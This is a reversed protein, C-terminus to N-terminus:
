VVRGKQPYGVMRHETANAGRAERRSAQAPPLEFPAAGTMSWNEALGADSGVSPPTTVSVQAVVPALASASSGPARGSVGTEAPLVLKFTREDVVNVSVAVPVASETVFVAITATAHSELGPVSLPVQLTGVAPWHTSKALKDFESTFERGM